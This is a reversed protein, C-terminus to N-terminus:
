PLLLLMQSMLHLIQILTRLCLRRVVTRADKPVLRALFKGPGEAAQFDGIMLEILIRLSFLLLDYDRLSLRSVIHMVTVLIYVVLITPHTDPSALPMDFHCALSEFLLNTVVRSIVRISV